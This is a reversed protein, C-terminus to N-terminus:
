SFAELLEPSLNEFEVREWRGEECNLMDLIFMKEPFKDAHVHHFVKNEGVRSYEMFESDSVIKFWTDVHIYKRYQPFSFDSGM